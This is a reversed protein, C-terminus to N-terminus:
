GVFKDDIWITSGIPINVLKLRITKYSIILLYDKSTM